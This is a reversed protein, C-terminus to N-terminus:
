RSISHEALVRRMTSEVTDEIMQRVRDIHVDIIAPLREAAEPGDIEVVSSTTPSQFLVQRVGEDRAPTDHHGNPPAPTHQM